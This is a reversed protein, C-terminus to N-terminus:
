LHIKEPVAQSRAHAQHKTEKKTRVKGNIRKQVVVMYRGNAMEYICEFKKEKVIDHRSLTKKPKKGENNEM